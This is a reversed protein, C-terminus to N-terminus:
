SKLPGSCAPGPEKQPTAGTGPVANSGGALTLVPTFPATFTQEALGIFGIFEGQALTEVAFYCFGRRTYLQQMRTIFARSESKSPLGPFHAMVEPNSNLVHLPELDAPQWPRFGLRDSSFVYPYLPASTGPPAM